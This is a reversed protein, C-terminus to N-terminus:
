SFLMNDFEPNDTFNDAGDEMSCDTKQPDENKVCYESQNQISVTKPNQSYGTELSPPQDPSPTNQQGLGVPPARQFQFDPTAPPPLEVRSKKM